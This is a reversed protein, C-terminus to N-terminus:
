DSKSLLFSPTLFIDALENLTSVAVVGLSVAWKVHQRGYGTKVLATFLGLSLGAYVDSPKDGVMVSSRWDVPYIINAALFMGIAPKRCECAEDPRHPCHHWSAIVIDEDALLQALRSNVAEYEDSKILGRGIGSQNTVVVLRYGADAFKKLGVVADQELVVKSPDRLYHEDRILTGDRDIFLHPTPTPDL